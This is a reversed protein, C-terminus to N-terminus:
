STSEPIEELFKRLAPKLYIKDLDFRKLAKGLALLKDGKSANENIIIVQKDRIRCLGGVSFAEDLPINEYRVAIGLKHSIEELHALLTIEDM